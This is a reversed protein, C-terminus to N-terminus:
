IFYEPYKEQIQKLEREYQESKDYIVRFKGTYHVRKSEIDIFYDVVSFYYTIYSSYPIGQVIKVNKAANTRQNKYLAFNVSLMKVFIYKDYGSTKHKYNQVYFFKQTPEQLKQLKSKDM